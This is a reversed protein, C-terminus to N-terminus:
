EHLSAGSAIGYRVAPSSRSLNPILSQRAAEYAEWDAIDPLSPITVLEGQDLGAIAADVVDDAEMVFQRPLRDIPMGAADWFETATAGPLVAQARINSEALEKQLARSLALVFAKTGGYVSGVLEEPVLGLISGINVITGGGRRLFAPLVAYTLRMLATVNLDIM